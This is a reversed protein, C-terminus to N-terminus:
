GGLGGGLCSRRGACAGFSANPRASGVKVLKGNAASLAGRGIAAAVRPRKSRNKTAGHNGPTNV